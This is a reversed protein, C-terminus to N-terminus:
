SVGGAHASVVVTEIPYQVSAVARDASLRPMTSAVAGFLILVSLAVMVGYLVKAGFVEGNSSFTSMQREVAPRRERHRARWQAVAGPWAESITHKQQLAVYPPCAAMAYTRLKFGM